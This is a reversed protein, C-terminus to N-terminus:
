PKDNKAGIIDNENIYIQSDECKNSKAKVLFKEFYGPPRRVKISGRAINFLKDFKKGMHKQALLSKLKKWDKIHNLLFSAALSYRSEGISLCDIIAQEVGYKKGYVIHKISPNLKIPTYKSIIEYMGNEKEIPKERIYYFRVQKGGGKKYLLGKKKLKHVLNIASQRAIGREKQIQELTYIGEM